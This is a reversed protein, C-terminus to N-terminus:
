LTVRAVCVVARRTARLRFSDAGDIDVATREIEFYGSVHATRAMGRDSFTGNHLLVWSWRQRPRGTEIRAEVEIRGDDSGAEMRWRTRGACRGGQRAEGDFSVAATGATGATAATAASVSDSLFCGLLTAPVGVRRLLM